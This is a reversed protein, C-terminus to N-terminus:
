SNLRTSKRDLLLDEALAAARGGVGRDAEREADGRHIGGFAAQQQRAEQRLRAVLRGVDVDVELVLAAFLDDLVDVVLVSARAGRQGGGHDAVAALARHAVDGLGEAKRGVLDRQKRLTVAPAVAFRRHFLTSRCLTTYPFLTYTRTSRPPRRIMLFFFCFFFFFLDFLVPSIIYSLYYIVSVHICMSCSHFMM